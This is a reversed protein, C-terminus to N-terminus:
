DSPRPISRWHKRQSNKGYRGISGHARLDIWGRFILVLFVGPPLSPRHTINVVKGGECHRFDLFDPLRLRGPAWLAQEPRYHSFKVKSLCAWYCCCNVIRDICETACVDCSSDVVFNLVDTNRVFEHFRGLCCRWVRYANCANAHRGVHHTCPSVNWQQWVTGDDQTRLLSIRNWWAYPM